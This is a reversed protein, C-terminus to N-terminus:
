GRKIPAAYSHLPSALQPIYNVGIYTFLVMAFGVMAAIVSKRGTWGLNIRLHLYVTYTLWTILAWTEKPDWSWFSGWATNAWVAGLFVGLTLLPWGIQVSRYALYEFADSRPLAGPRNGTLEKFFYLIGFVFALLFCSYSILLSTVHFNLWVSNLVAVLPEVKRSHLPMANAATMLAWGTLCAGMGIWGRRYIGEFILTLVAFAGMAFTLSEYFNSVPMRGGLIFRIVLAAILMLGAALQLGFGIRWGLKPLPATELEASIIPDHFGANARMPWDAAAEGANVPVFSGATTQIDLGAVNTAFGAQQSAMLASIPNPEKGMYERAGPAYDETRGDPFAHTQDSPPPMRRRAIAMATLFVAFAAFYIWAAKQFPKIRTNWFDLRRVFNSMYEPNSTIKGLFGATASTIQDPKQAEYAERLAADLALTSAWPEAKPDLTSVRHQLDEDRLLDPRSFHSPALWVGESNPLPVIKFEGSLNLFTSMRFAFKKLADQVDKDLGASFSEDGTLVGMVLTRAKPTKMVWTPAVRNHVKPNLGFIEALRASEVPIVPSRVWLKNQYVMGLTTYVPDQDNFRSRGTIASVSIEAFTRLSTKVGESQVAIQDIGSQKIATEVAPYYLEKPDLQFIASAEHPDGASSSAAPGTSAPDGASIEAANASLAPKETRGTDGVYYDATQLM